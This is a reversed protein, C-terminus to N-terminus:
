EESWDIAQGCKRCFRDEHAHNKETVPSLQIGCDNPCVYKVYPAEGENEYHKVKPKKPASKEVLEKLVDTERSVNDYFFGDIKVKLDDAIESLHLIEEIAEQYKNM